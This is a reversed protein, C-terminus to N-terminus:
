EQQSKLKGNEYFYSFLGNAVNSKFQGYSEKKGNEFYSEIIDTTDVSKITLNKSKLKNSAYYNYIVSMTDNIKVFESKINGNAYYEYVEKYLYQNSDSNQNSFAKKVKSKCYNCSTVSLFLIIIVFAINIKKNFTKM